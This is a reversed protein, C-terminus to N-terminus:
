QHQHHVRRCRHRIELLEDVPRFVEFPGEVETRGADAGAPMERALEVLQHCADLGLVDRVLARPGRQHVQDGPLIMEIKGADLSRLGLHSAPLQAPERDGRGLTDRGQGIQGRDRFLQRAEFDHAPVAHDPRGPQGSGDDRPQVILEDSYEVPGVHALADYRVARFRGAGRGLFKTEEHEGVEGFPGLEDLLAPRLQISDPPWEIFARMKTAMKIAAAAGIPAACACVNGEFDSRMTTGNGGPPVASMVLRMRATCMAFPRPCVTTTSFRGPPLVMMPVSTTAREGASPWVSSTTNGLKTILGANRRSIDKSGRFSKLGTPWVIDTGM